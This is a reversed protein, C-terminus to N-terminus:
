PRQFTVADSELYSPVIKSHYGLFFPFGFYIVLWFSAGRGNVHRFYNGAHLSPFRSSVLGTDRGHNSCFWHIQTTEKTARALILQM